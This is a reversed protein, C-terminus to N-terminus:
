DDSVPSTSPVYGNLLGIEAFRALVTWEWPELLVRQALCELAQEVYGEGKMGGVAARLVKGDNWLADIGWGQTSLSPTSLLYLDALLSWADADQHFTDLYGVLLPIANVIAAPSPTPTQGTSPISPSSTAPPPYLALTILRQHATQGRPEDDASVRM